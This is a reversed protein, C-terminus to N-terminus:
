IFRGKIFATQAKSVLGEMCCGLRNALVKTVLKTFSHVLSIPRFDKIQDAGEKKPIMAIYASNLKYFSNLRRDWVALAAAMVDDKIISWCVKYFLGTFGDPGSAKDSPLGKITEWVEQESFLLIWVM